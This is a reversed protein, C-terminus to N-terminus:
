CRMAASATYDDLCKRSVGTLQAIHAKCWQGVTPGAAVAKPTDAIGWAEMARRGGLADVLAKFKTADDETDFTVSTQRRDITYLVSWATSGGRRARTRISAM